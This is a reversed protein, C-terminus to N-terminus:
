QRNIGTSLWHCLIAAASAANLSEARGPMAIKVQLDSIALAQSSLGSGENGIMLAAGAEYDKIQEIPQGTLAAAVLVIGSAKLWVSADVITQFRYIPVHFTSGMAARLAKDGFPDTTAGALVVGDFAFADASRIITGLNGPDQINELVLFLGDPKASQQHAPMLVPSNAFMLIGQPTITGALDAFLRDDLLTFEIGFESKPESHMREALLDAVRTWREHSQTDARVILITPQIGSILAEEVQRFGEVLILGAQHAKRSDRLGKLKKFTENDRSTITKFPFQNNM